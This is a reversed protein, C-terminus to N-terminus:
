KGKGAYNITVTDKATGGASDTVTLEFTAPGFLLFNATPTATSAGTLGANGSIMTWSYKLPRGDFAVSATGDLLYFQQVTSADKPGAVAKTAAGGGTGPTAVCSTIFPGAAALIEQMRKATDYAAPFPITLSILNLYAAHRAEVTAITAGATRLDPNQIMGLAGDYAMVGTNELVTAVAVFGDFNTYGFNYQCPDVPVGGLSRITSKLIDVHVNEHDRIAKFNDFLTASILTGVLPVFSAGSLDSASFRTLRQNYFAAELHQLTLAFNLIDIDTVPAPTTQALAPRGTISVVSAGVGLALARRSNRHPKWLTTDKIQPQHNREVGGPM